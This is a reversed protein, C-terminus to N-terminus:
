EKQSIITNMYGSIVERYGPKDDHVYVQILYVLKHGPEHEYTEEHEDLIPLHIKKYGKDKGMYVCVDEPEVGILKALDDALTDRANVNTVYAKQDESPATSTWVFARKYWQWCAARNLLERTRSNCKHTLYYFAQSDTWFFFDKSLEGERHAFDLARYLMAGPGQNAQSYVYSYVIRRTREWGLIEEDYGPLLVLEGNRMAYAEALRRPEYLPRTVLGMSLGFRLSNDLNDVDISGNVLDSIPPEKGTIYNVIRDINGGQRTVEKSFESGDLVDVVFEEHTKGLMRVQFYESAHSFPPTGMDHALAACTMDFAIDKFETKKAVIDALHAVGVSHEFKSSCVGTPITWTPVASLSVQRLRALERTQFLRMRSESIPLKGYLRDFVITKDQDQAGNVM